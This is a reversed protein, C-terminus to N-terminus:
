FQISNDNSILSLVPTWPPGVENNSSNQNEWQLKICMNNGFCPASDAVHICPSCALKLYYVIEKTPSPRLRTAPDTPGWVSKSLVGILRSVHLLGSDVCWVEISKNLIQVSNTLSFNGCINLFLLNPFNIKLEKIIIEAFSYDNIVGFFVFTRCTVGNTYIQHHFFNVWQLSTLEREKGFSSCFPAVSIYEYSSLGCTEISHSSDFISKLMSSKTDKFSFVPAFLIKAIYDYFLYVPAYKNFYISINYIRYKSKLEETWYGISLKSFSIICLFASLRSHVELDISIKCFLLRPFVSITSLILTMFNRDKIEYICDFANFLEAYRKVSSSCLLILHANPYKHKLALIMPMSIVLSGGGLIKIILIKNKFPIFKNLGLFTIFNKFSSGLFLCFGGLYKDLIKYFQINM